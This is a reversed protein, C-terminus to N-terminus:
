VLMAFHYTREARGAVCAFHVVEARDGADASGAELGIRIKAFAVSAPQVDLEGRRDTHRALVLAGRRGAALHRGELAGVASGAIQERLPVPVRPARQLALGGRM